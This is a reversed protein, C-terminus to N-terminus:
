PQEGSSAAEIDGATAMTKEGFSLVKPQLERLLRDAAAIAAPLDDSKRIRLEAITKRQDNLFEVPKVIDDYVKKVSRKFEAPISPNNLIAVYRAEAATFDGFLAQIKLETTQAERIPTAMDPLDPQNACATLLVLMTAFMPNRAYKM